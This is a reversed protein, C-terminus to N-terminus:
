LILLRLGQNLAEEDLLSQLSNYGAKSSSATFETKTQMLNEVFEAVVAEQVLIKDELKSLLREIRQREEEVLYKLKDINTILSGRNELENVKEILTRPLKSSKISELIEDIDSGQFNAISSLVNQSEVLANRRIKMENIQSLTEM